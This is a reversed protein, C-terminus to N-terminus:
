RLAAAQVRQSIENIRASASAMEEAHAVAIGIAAASLAYNGNDLRQALGEAILTDVARSVLSASMGLGKALAANSVGNLTHGKLAKFVRLVKRASTIESM